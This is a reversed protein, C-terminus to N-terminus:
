QNCKLVKCSLSCRRMRQLVEEAYASRLMERISTEGLRGIPRTSDPILDQQFCTFVSGDPMISLNRGAALCAQHDSETNPSSTEPTLPEVPSWSGDFGHQVYPQVSHYIGRERCWRSVSEVDQETERARVSQVSLQEPRLTKQIFQLNTFVRDLSDTGRVWRWREPDVTDISFVFHVNRERLKLVFDPTCLLGNTVLTTRIPLDAIGSVIDVVRQRYLLPEGGVICLEVASDVARVAEILLAVEVM